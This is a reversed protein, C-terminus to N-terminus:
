LASIIVKRTRKGDFECLFVGQWTGLALRNGNTPLWLSCGFLSSKIHADSNGELHKYGNKHPVLKALYTEIDAVVDPDACENVIVACTTHPIFVNAMGEGENAGMEALAANIKATIDIFDVRAQTAVEITKRKTMKVAAIVAAAADAM